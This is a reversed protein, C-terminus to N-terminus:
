TGAASLQKSLNEGFFVDIEYWIQSAGLNWEFPSPVIEKNKKPLKQWLVPVTGTTDVNKGFRSRGFIGFVNHIIVDLSAFVHKKVLILKTEEILPELLVERKEPNSNVSFQLIQDKRRHGSQGCIGSITKLKSMDRHEFDRKGYSKAQNRIFNYSVAKIQLLAQSNFIRSIQVILLIAVIPQFHRFACSNNNQQYEFEDERQIEETLLCQKHSYLPVKGNVLIIPFDCILSDIM